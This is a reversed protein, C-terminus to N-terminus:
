AFDGGLALMKEHFLDVHIDFSALIELQNGSRISYKLFLAGFFIIRFILGLGSGGGGM